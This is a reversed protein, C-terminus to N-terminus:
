YTSRKRFFFRPRGARLLFVETHQPLATSASCLGLGLNVFTKENKKELFFRKRRRAKLKGASM